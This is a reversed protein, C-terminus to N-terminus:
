LSQHKNLLCYMLPKQEALYGNSKNSVHIIKKLFVFFSRIWGNLYKRVSLILGFLEHIIGTEGMAEAHFKNM